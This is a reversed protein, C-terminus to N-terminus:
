AMDIRMYLLPKHNPRSETRIGVFIANKHTTTVSLVAHAEIPVTIEAYTSFMKGNNIAHM